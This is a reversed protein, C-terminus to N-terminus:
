VHFMKLYIFLIFQNRLIKRIFVITLFLSAIYQYTSKNERDFWDLIYRMIKKKNTGTTMNHNLFYGTTVPNLTSLTFKFNTNTVHKNIVFKEITKKSKTALVLDENPGLLVHHYTLLNDIDLQYHYVKHVLNDFSDNISNHLGVTRYM